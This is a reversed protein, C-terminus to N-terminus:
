AGVSRGHGLRCGGLDRPRAASGGNGDEHNVPVLLVLDEADRGEGTPLPDDAGCRGTPLPQLEGERVIEVRDDDGALQAVAAPDLQQPGERPAKGSGRDDEDHRRIALFRRQLRHLGAGLGVDHLRRPVVLEQGRDHPLMDFLSPVPLPEDLRLLDPGLDDRFPLRDFFPEGLALGAQPHDELLRGEEQPARILVQPDCGRHPRAELGQLQRM